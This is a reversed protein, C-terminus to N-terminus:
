EQGREKQAREVIEEIFATKGDTYAGRDHGHRAALDKKLAEYEAVTEPHSRLYDRFLLHRRYERSDMTLIHVHHTRPVGKRFFHRRNPDDAGPQHRYGLRQLREEFVTAPVMESLGIQIDLIPKASLGPVSTSGIHEIAAVDGGLEKLLSEREAEYLAPWAPDYPTIEVKERM